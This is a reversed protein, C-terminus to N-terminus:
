HSELLGSIATLTEQPQYDLRNVTGSIDYTWDESILQLSTLLQKQGGARAISKALGFVWGPLAYRKPYPGSGVKNSILDAVEKLSVADRDAVLYANGYFKENAIIKLILRSLAQVHLLHIQVRHRPLIFRRRSIMETMKHIFGDDGPGYTITPRLIITQLRESHFQRVLEEAQWKSKHYKGDPNLPQQARAPQPNPITGLVGVSSIYIFHPISKKVAFDLLARTGDVNVKQYAAADQGSEGRIAACHIICDINEKIRDLLASEYFLGRYFSVEPREHVNWEKRSVAVIQFQSAPLSNLINSGIFGGAGTLLITKM